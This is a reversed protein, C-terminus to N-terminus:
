ANLFFMKILLFFSWVQLSFAATDDPKLSITLFHLNKGNSYFAHLIM